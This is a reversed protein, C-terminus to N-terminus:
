DDEASNATPVARGEAFCALDHGPCIRVHVPAGEPLLLTHPALCEVRDGSPLDVRYLNHMGQFVRERVHCLALPQVSGAWADEAAPVLVLDDPRVLVEVAAGEPLALHQPIRGLETALGERTVRAPLFCTYGLFEAVFRARPAHFIAEPTDIQELRGGCLVAVRDGITLAEEQDHTVFIATAGAAKIIGRVEERVVTRLRADLNSFPEDLLLIAPRPALARALAVRQQQGGSLEHPMRDALPGLGVGALMEAIRAAKDPARDLGYGVNQAVTLHPFLAYHQFVMGIRRREPAVFVGPGAAVTGGVVIEGGDPKELGAILRLATTKGCGSPGLLVLIEGRAVEFSVDDLARVAGFRKTLHLCSVAAVDSPDVTDPDVPAPDVTVPDRTVPDV